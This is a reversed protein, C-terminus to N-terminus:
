LYFVYKSIISFPEPYQMIWTLDFPQCSTTFHNIWRITPNDCSQASNLINDMLVQFAGDITSGTSPALTTCVDCTLGLYSLFVGFNSHLEFNM